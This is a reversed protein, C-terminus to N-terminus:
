RKAGATLCRQSIPLPSNTIRTSHFASFLSEGAQEAKERIANAADLAKQEEESLEPKTEEPPPPTFSLAESSMRAHLQIDFTNSSTLGTRRSRTFDRSVEVDVVSEKRGSVWRRRGEARDGRWAMGDLLWGPSDKSGERSESHASDRCEGRSRGHTTITSDSDLRRSSPSSSSSIAPPVIQPCSQRLERLTSGDGELRRGKWVERHQNNQTTSPLLLSPSM